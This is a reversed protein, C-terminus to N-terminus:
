FVLVGQTSPQLTGVQVSTIDFEYYSQKKGDTGIVNAVVPTNSGPPTVKITTAVFTSASAKDGDTWKVGAFANEGPALTISTAAGPINVKKVPVTVAEDAANLFTLTPWGDITAKTKGNNAIALLGLGDQQITLDVTFQGSTAGAKTNSTVPDAAVQNSTSTVPASATTTTGSTTSSGSASTGSGCAALGVLVTATLTPLIVQRIRM